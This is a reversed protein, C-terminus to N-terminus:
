FGYNNKLLCEFFFITKFACSNALLKINLFYVSSYTMFIEQYFINIFFFKNTSVSRFQPVFGQSVVCTVFCAGFFATVLKM